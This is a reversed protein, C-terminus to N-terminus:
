CFAKDSSQWDMECERWSMNELPSRLATFPPTFNSSTGLKLNMWWSFRAPGFCNGFSRVVAGWQFDLSRMKNAWGVYRSVSDAEMGSTGQTGQTDPTHRTHGM